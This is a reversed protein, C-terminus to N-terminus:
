RFSFVPDDNEVELSWHKNATDYTIEAIQLEKTYNKPSRRWGKEDSLFIPIRYLKNKLESQNLCFVAGEQLIPYLDKLLESDLPAVPSGKCFFSRRDNVKELTIRTLKSALIRYFEDLYRYYVRMTENGLNFYVFNNQLKYFFPSHLHTRMHGFYLLESIELPTLEKLMALDNFDIWKTGKSNTFTKNNFFQQVQESNNIIKLGTHPEYEGTEAMPDLLLLNKPRHVIGEVFDNPSLGKSLVANSTSDIYAFLTDPM